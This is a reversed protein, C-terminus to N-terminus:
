QLAQDVKRDKPMRTDLDHSAFLNTIEDFLPITADPEEVPKSRGDETRHLLVDRLNRTVEETKAIGGLLHAFVPTIGKARKSYVPGMNREDVPPRPISTFAGSIQEIFGICKWTESTGLGLWVRVTQAFHYVQRMLPVQESRELTDAQNICVGDAWVHYYPTSENSQLYRLATYLSATIALPKGDIFIEHNKEDDGWVYSLAIYVPLGLVRTVQGIKDGIAHLMDKSNPLYHESVTGSLPLPDRYGSRRHSPSWSLKLLRIQSRASDLATYRYQTSPPRSSNDLHNAMATTKLSV